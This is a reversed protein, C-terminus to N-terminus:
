DGGERGPLRLRFIAGGGERDLYSVRGGASEMLQRVIFLGLGFGGEEGAVSRTGRRFKGFLGPQEDAPIGPGRDRVEGIWREGESRLGLEVESAAPAFKLANGILNDLVQGLAEADMETDAGGPPPEFKLGVGRSQSAAKHREVAEAFAARADCRVPGATTVRHEAAHADLLRTVLSLMRRCSGRGDDLARRLRAAAPDIMGGALELVQDLMQLPGRLDHAALSMLDTMETNRRALDRNQAAITREKLFDSRKARFLLWSVGAAFVVGTSGDTLSALRFREDYDGRLILVVYIAHVIAFVPLSWRPPLVYAVAVIMLAFVYIARYGMEDASTLAQIVGMGLTGWLSFLILMWALRVSAGPRRLRSTFFILLPIVIVDFWQMAALVDSPAAAYHNLVLVVVRNALGVWLLWFLRQLNVRALEALFADERGAAPKAEALPATM